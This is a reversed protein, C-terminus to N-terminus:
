AHHLRRAPDVSAARRAPILASAFAIATVALAAAAMTAPNRPPIGYVLSELLNAAFWGGISGFAIGIAALRLAQASTWRLIAGPRAGLALRVAIEPERVAVWYSLLGYIGIAALLMALGAFLTLLFTTFRRSGLGAYLSEEATAISQLPLNKDLTRVQQRIAPVLAIPDAAARVLITMDSARQTSALLYIEPMSQSDREFPKVNGAVGAIEVIDGDLYPGGLKLQHGVASERPWWRRALRQNILVVSRNADTADNLARGELIPIGMMQFYDASAANVLTLPVENRAPTPRGVVSYWNDGCDGAGPACFVSSVSVVGPVARLAPVLRAYFQVAADSTKYASRPLKLSFSLLRHPDYGPDANEAAMLSRLLLGSGFALVFTLAVEAVVLVNRASQRRKRGSVRAGEKMVAALDPNGASFVPAIGALLGAAVSAACAFALVPLDISTDALRPIGAPALKLLTSLALYALGIGAIGGIATVTLNETLLQRVLRFRGAGIAKRVALESARSTNRALLLSAVNACAILLILGAAGMLVIMTRRLGGAIDDIWLVGESRHSREPGPDAEALRQMISDLDARAQAVTVGAKLRGLIRTSGHQARNVIGANQRGLPLYYDVSWPEWLPAAVGIVEYPNGNLILTSGVVAPDSGLAGSWFRHNLVAVAPAGAKDDQTSYLRGLQARMGTVDFYSATAVLGRTQRPEGRGTLTPTTFQRAAMVEFTHNADRWHQYNVWTVSVLGSGGVKEGFYVLRDQNPYPLPKLLVTRVVSFIATNLGIGCALTLIVVAAFGPARSLGRLGQRLDQFFSDIAPFRWADHSREAIATTNGFRAHAAARAAEPTLGRDIHREVEMDFHARLEDALDADLAPDRRFIKSWFTRM